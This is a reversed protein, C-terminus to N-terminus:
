SYFVIEIAPKTKTAKKLYLGSIRSEIRPVDLNAQRDLYDVLRYRSNTLRNIRSAVRKFGVSHEAWGNSELVIEMYAHIMEHIITSEWNLKTLYLNSNLCLAPGSIRGSRYGRTNKGIYEAYIDVGIDMIHIKLSECDLKGDFLNANFDAILAKVETKTPTPLLNKSKIIDRITSSPFKPLASLFFNKKRETLRDFIGRDQFAWQASCM